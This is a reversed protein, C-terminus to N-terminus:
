KNKTFTNFIFSTFFSSLIGSISFSFITKMIMWTINSMPEEKTKFVFFLIVNTIVMLTIITSLTSMCHKLYDFFTIAAYHKQLFFASVIIGVFVMLFQVLSLPSNPAIKQSILILNYAIIIFSTILGIRTSLTKNM